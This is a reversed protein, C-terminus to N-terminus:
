IAKKRRRSRKRKPKPQSAAPSAVAEAEGSEAIPAPTPTPAAGDDEPLAAIAARIADAPADAEILALVPPIEKAMCRLVGPRDWSSGPSRDFEALLANKNM